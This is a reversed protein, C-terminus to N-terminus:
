AWRSLTSILSSWPMLPSILIPSSTQPFAVWSTINAVVLHFVRSSPTSFKPASENWELNRDAVFLLLTPYLGRASARQLIALYKLESLRSLHLRCSYSVLIAKDKKLADALLYKILPVLSPLTYWLIDLAPETFSKCTRAARALTSSGPIPWEGDSQDVKTYHFIRSLIEPIHLCPHM